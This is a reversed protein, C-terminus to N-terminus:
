RGRRTQSIRLRGVVMPVIAEVKFEPNEAAVLSFMNQFAESSMIARIEDQGFGMGKLAEQTEIKPDGALAQIAVAPRGIVEVGRGILFPITETVLTGFDDLILEIGGKPTGVPEGDITVIAPGEAALETEDLIVQTMDRLADVYTQRIREVYASQEVENMTALIAAAPADEAIIAEIQEVTPEQVNRSLLLDQVSEALIQPPGPPAVEETKFGKLRGFWGFDASLVALTPLRTGPTIAGMEGLRAWVEGELAQQRRFQAFMAPLVETSGEDVATQMSELLGTWDENLSTKAALLAEFKEQPTAAAAARAVLAATTAKQAALFIDTMRGETFAATLAQGLGPDSRAIDEIIKPIETQALIQNKTSVQALQQEGLLNELNLLQTRAILAAPTVLEGDVETRLKRLETRAREEITSPFPALLTRTEELSLDPFINPEPGVPELREAERGVISPLPADATGAAQLEEQTLEPAELTGAIREQELRRQAEAFQAGIQPNQLFFDAIMRKRDANPDIINAIGQGLQAFAGGFNPPPIFQIQLIM